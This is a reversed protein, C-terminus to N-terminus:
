EGFSQLFLTLRIHYKRQQEDKFRHCSNYQKNEGIASIAVYSKPM